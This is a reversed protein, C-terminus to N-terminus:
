SFDAGSFVAKAEALAEMEQARGAQRVDFNKVLFDCSKHLDVGTQVLREADDLAASRDAKATEHDATLEAIEQTKSAILAALKSVSDNSGKIFEEYSAQADTEAELAEKEMTEAEKIISSLLVLVGNAGQKKTEFTEFGKPKESLAAGPQQAGQYLVFHGGLVAQVLNQPQAQLLGQKKKYFAELRAKAKKLVDQAARQEKVADQFEKNEAEREESAAAMQKQTEKVEAKHEAIEKALTKLTSEAEEMFATLETIARQKIAIAKENERLEKVCTDKEMVEDAQEKKLSAVMDDISKRIKVFVDLQAHDAIQALAASRPGGLRAAKRLLAVGRRREHNVQVFSLTKSFNDRADDDSLISIAESVAAIEESRTKQRLAFDKDTQQCQLKLSALVETDAALASRTGSLSEKADALKEEADALSQSQSKIKVTGADIEAEKAKKLEAFDSSAQMENKQEASLNSEFEEKMSSLIGFIQGSAPTYSGANPQQVLAKLVRRQSPKLTKLSDSRKLVREAATWVQVMATPKMQMFTAEHHKSLVFVANKLAQLSQMMDKEDDTFEATEKERVKTAQDLAASNSEVEKQVQAITAKLGAAKASLREIDSVLGTIQKNAVTTSLTKEKMNTECWCTLKDFVAQDKAKEANLEAQMDKLLKVVKAVPRYKLDLTSADQVLTSGLVLPLLLLVM